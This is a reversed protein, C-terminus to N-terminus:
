QNIGGRRRNHNWKWQLRWIGYRSVWGPSERTRNGGVLNNTEVDGEEDEEDDIDDGFMNPDCVHFHRWLFQFRNRNLGFYKVIEHQPM